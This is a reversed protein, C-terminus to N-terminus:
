WKVWQPSELSELSPIYKKRSDSGVKVINISEIKITGSEPYLMVHPVCAAYKNFNEKFDDRRSAAIYFDKTKNKYKNIEKELKSKSKGIEGSNIKIANIKKKHQILFEDTDVWETEDLTKVAIPSEVVDYVIDEDLSNTDIVYEYLENGNVWTHHGAGFIQGLLTLPLPDFFLSIHANYIGPGNIKKNWETQEKIEKDDAAGSRLRNKLIDYLSKSYHYLKM